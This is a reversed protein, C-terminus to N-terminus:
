YGYYPQILPRAGYQQGYLPSYGPCRRGGHRHGRNPPYAPSPPYGPGSIYTTTPNYPVPQQRRAGRNGM